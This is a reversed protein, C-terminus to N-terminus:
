PFTMQREKQKSHYDYRTITFFAHLFVFINKFMKLISKFKKTLGM